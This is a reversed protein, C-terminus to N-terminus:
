NWVIESSRRHLSRFDFGAGGAGEVSPPEFNLEPLARMMKHLDKEQEKERQQLVFQLILHVERQLLDSACYPSDFSCSM